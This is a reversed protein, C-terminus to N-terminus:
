ADNELTHTHTPFIQIQQSYVSLDRTYKYQVVSAESAVTSENDCSPTSRKKAALNPKTKPSQKLFRLVARYGHTKLDLARRCAANIAEPAYEKDLCLIGM